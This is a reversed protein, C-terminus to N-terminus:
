ITMEIGTNRIESSLASYKDKLDKSNLGIPEIAYNPDKLERKSWLYEMAKWADKFKPSIICIDIDSSKNQTGKAYSGFIIVKEIPLKDEKLKKIYDEIESIVKKPIPKKAM